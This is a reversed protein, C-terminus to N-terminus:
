IGSLIALDQGFDSIMSNLNDADATGNVVNLQPQRPNFSSTDIALNTVNAVDEWPVFKFNSSANELGEDEILVAPENSGDHVVLLGSPFQSGLPVNVVDAGDSEQVADIGGSEGM